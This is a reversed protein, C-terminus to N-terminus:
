TFKLAVVTINDKEMRKKNLEVLKQCCEELAAEPTQKIEGLKETEGIKGTERLKETKGLRETEGPQQANAFGQKIEDATLKHRFGDCCIIYTANKSVQGSLFEPALNPTAGICQLLISKRPDKEAEEETLRRLEVERAVLTQDKTIQVIDNTIEYLRTDGVHAVYYRKGIILMATLTTGLKTNTEQGLTLLAENTEKILEDMSKYISEELHYGTLLKPLKEQFWKGLNRVMTTSALEGKQLGGVGDCVAIFAIDGITTSATKILLADQNVEKVIGKDTCYATIIGM